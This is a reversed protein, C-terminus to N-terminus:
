SPSAHLSHPFKVNTRLPVHIFHSVHPPVLPQEHCLETTREGAERMLQYGRKVPARLKRAEKDAAM